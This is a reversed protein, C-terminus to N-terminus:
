VKVAGRTRTLDWSGWMGLVVVLMTQLTHVILAFIIASNDAVGYIVLMTKIAFHWSGAGNPTPVLVAFSGISFILLAALPDINSTFDFCFFALYFHLFYGVWIGVSYFWYLFPSEVRRLSSIGEWLNLMRERGKSFAKFKIALGLLTAVAVVCCIITVLYGKHTFRSLLSYVDFGTEKAFQMFTPLQSLLAITAIALMLISDVIRETVVTGISKTFSVGDKKKLTGCRTVEGVRPIVLSAAYSLFIANICTRKTANEGIPLLTMQWRLARFVQPVVGFIMSIAMWGWNVEGQLTILFENWNTDRYMWWLIGGGLLLPFFMKFINRLIHEM